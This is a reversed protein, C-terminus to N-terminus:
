QCNFFETLESADPAAFARMLSREWDNLAFTTEYCNRWVARYNQAMAFAQRFYEDRSAHDCNEGSWFLMKMAIGTLYAGASEDLALERAESHALRVSELMEFWQRGKGSTIQGPRKLRYYLGTCDLVAIKRARGVARVHVPFDEFLLNEPFRLDIERAFETRFVRVCVSVGMGMLSPARALTTVVIPAANLIGEFIPVDFLPTVAGTQSHFFCARMIALDVRQADAIQIAMRHAASDFFDDSDVFSVYRSRCLRLGQNRAASLGRNETRVLIASAESAKLWDLAVAEGGDTSGDNVVVLEIHEDGGATLSDLARRVYAATNYVPVIVCLAPPDRRRREFVVEFESSMGDEDKM